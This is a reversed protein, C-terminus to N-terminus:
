HTSTSRMSVLLVGGIILIFGLLDIGAFKTKLWLASILTAAVPEVCGLMSAKMPGIDAVGQLYLSFALLTGIIVIVGVAMIIDWRYNWPQKWIRLGIGLVGGGILMAFGNILPTGWKELLYGPLMTYTVMAIAALGGWKLAGSSIVIEYPNGHTVLLFVGTLAFLVALVEKKEPLRRHSICTILMILIIGTYQFVTATGSNSFHIATLYAFQSFLLGGVAFLVLRVADAPQKWVEVMAKKKTIFCFICLLIGSGLMRIATLTGSDMQSNAFIYQGCTGSFGWGVGGALTCLIGRIKKKQSMGM